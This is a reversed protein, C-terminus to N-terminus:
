PRLRRPAPKDQATADASVVPAAAPASLKAAAALVMAAESAATMTTDLCEAPAVVTAALSPAVGHRTMWCSTADLAATRSDLWLEERSLSAFNKGRRLQTAVIALADSTDSSLPSLSYHSFEGQRARIDRVEELAALAVQNGDFAAMLSLAQIDALSQTLNSDAAALIRPPLRSEGLIAAVASVTGSEFAQSGGPGSLRAASEARSYAHLLAFLELPSLPGDAPVARSSADSPEGLYRELAPHQSMVAAAAQGLAAASAPRVADAASAGSVYVTPAASVKIDPGMMRASDAVRRAFTEVSPQRHAVRIREISLQGSALALALFGRVESVAHDYEALEAAPKSTTM